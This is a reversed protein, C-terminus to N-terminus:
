YMVSGFVMYVAVLRFTCFNPFKKFSWNNFGYEDSTKLKGYNMFM